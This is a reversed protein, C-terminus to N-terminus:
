TLPSTTRAADVRGWASVSAFGSISLVRMLPQYEFLFLLSLGKSSSAKEAVLLLVALPDDHVGTGPNQRLDNLYGDLYFTGQPTIKVSTTSVKM